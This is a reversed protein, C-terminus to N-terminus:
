VDRDKGAQDKEVHMGRTFLTVKSETGSFLRGVNARHRWISLGPLFLGLLLFELRAEASVPLGGRLFLRACLGGLFLMACISSLSVYRTLVAVILFVACWLLAVRVDLSLLVGVTSAVGKGGRFGLYFPYDHGLMVGTATWLVMLMKIDPQGAYFFRVAVCPIMAKLVDGLLVLVGARTGMVRLSNTAGTSHSGYSRIDFGRARGLFYGSQFSGFLYGIVLCILKAIM